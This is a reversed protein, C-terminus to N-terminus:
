QPIQAKFGKILGILQVLDTISAEAAKGFVEGIFVVLKQATADDICPLITTPDALNNEEFLGNLGQQLIEKDTLTQTLLILAFIALLKRM